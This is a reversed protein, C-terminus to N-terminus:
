EMSLLGAATAKEPEKRVQADNVGHAGRGLRIGLRTSM